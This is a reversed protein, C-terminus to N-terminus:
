RRITVFATLSNFDHLLFTPQKHLRCLVIIVSYRIPAITDGASPSLFRLIRFPTVQATM